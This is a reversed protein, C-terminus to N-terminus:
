DENEEDQNNLRLKLSDKASKIKSIDQTFFLDIARGLNVKTDSGYVPFQRYVIAKATDAV